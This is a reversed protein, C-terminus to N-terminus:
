VNASTHYQYQCQYPSYKRQIQQGVHYTEATRKTTVVDATPSAAALSSRVSPMWNHCSWAMRFGGVTRVSHRVHTCIMYM